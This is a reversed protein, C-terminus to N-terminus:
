RKSETNKKRMRWRQLIAWRELTALKQERHKSDKNNLLYM